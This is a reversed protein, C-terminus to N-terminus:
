YYLWYMMPEHLSVPSLDRSEGTESKENTTAQTKAKKEVKERRQKGINDGMM